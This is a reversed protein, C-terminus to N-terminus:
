ALIAEAQQLKTATRLSHTEAPNALEGFGNLRIWQSRDM